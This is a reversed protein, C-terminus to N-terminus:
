VNFDTNWSLIGKCSDYKNGHVDKFEGTVEIYYYLQFCKGACWASKSEETVRNTIKARVPYDQLTLSKHWGIM